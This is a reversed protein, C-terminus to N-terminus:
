RYRCNYYNIIEFIKKSDTKGTTTLPIYPLSSMITPEPYGHLIKRIEAIDISEDNRWFIGYGEGLVRDYYIPVAIINSISFRKSLINNIKSINVRVGNVKVMDSKRGVLEFENDNIYTVIDSTCWKEPPTQEYEPKAIRNSSIILDEQSNTLSEGRHFLVDPFGKWLNKEQNPLVSRYAIGGTETSGLIEYSSIRLGSNKILHYASDPINAGSHILTLKCGSKFKKKLRRLIDWTTPICIILINKFKDLDILNFPSKWAQHVTIGYCKPYYNGFLYGFIYTTPAFNIIIDPNLNLIQSVMNVESLLQSETRLWRQPIGTTGSTNFLVDMNNIGQLSIM